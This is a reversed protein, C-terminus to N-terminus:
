PVGYCSCKRQLPGFLTCSASGDDVHLIPSSATRTGTGDTGLARKLDAYLSHMRLLNETALPSQAKPSTCWQLSCCFTVALVLLYRFTVHTKFSGSDCVKAAVCTVWHTV